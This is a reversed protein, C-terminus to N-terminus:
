LLMSLIAPSQLFQHGTGAMSALREFPAPHMHVLGAYHLLSADGFARNLAACIDSWRSTTHNDLLPSHISSFQNSM